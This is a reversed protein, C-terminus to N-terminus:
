ACFTLSALLFFPDPLWRSELGHAMGPINASGGIVLVAQLYKRIKEDGGAARASNFIAVDLPLKSAEFCVDIGFGGPHRPPAPAPTKVGKGEEDLQVIEIPTQGDADTKSVDTNTSTSPFGPILRRPCNAAQDHSDCAHSAADLHDYRLDPNYTPNTQFYIPSL